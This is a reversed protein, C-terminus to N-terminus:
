KEFSKTDHELETIFRQGLNAFYRYEPLASEREVSRFFGPLWELAHVRGFSAIRNTWASVCDPSSRTRVAEGWQAYLYSLFELETACADCPETRLNAPRVGAEAMQREVDVTTQTRFLNPVDERRALRHRYASEYPWILVETGPALFLRSYEKRLQSANSEFPQDDSTEEWLSDLSGAVDDCDREAGCAEEWSDNWDSAFRGDVLATALRDGEPFRFAEALLAALDSMGIARHLIDDAYGTEEGM